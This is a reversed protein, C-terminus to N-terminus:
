LKCFVIKSVLDRIFLTFQVRFHTNCSIHCSVVEERGEPPSYGSYVTDHRIKWQGETENPQPINEQFVQTGKKLISKPNFGQVIMQYIDSPSEIIDSKHPTPSPRADSHKFWIINTDDDSELSWYCKLEDTPSFSVRKKPASQNQSTNEIYSSDPRGTGNMNEFCTDSKEFISRSIHNEEISNFNSPVEHLKSPNVDFKENSFGFPNSSQMSQATVSAIENSTEDEKDALYPAKQSISLLNSSDFVRNSDPSQVEADINETVSDEDEDSSNLSFFYYTYRTYFFSFLM